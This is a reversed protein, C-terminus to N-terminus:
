MNISRFPANTHFQKWTFYAQRGYRMSLAPPMDSFSAAVIFLTNIFIARHTSNIITFTTFCIIFFLLILPCLQLDLKRIYCCRDDGQIRRNENAMRPSAQIGLIEKWIISYKLYSYDWVYVCVHLMRITCSSIIHCHWFLLCTFLPCMKNSVVMNSNDVCDHLTTFM